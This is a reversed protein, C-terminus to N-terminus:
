VILSRYARFCTTMSAVNGGSVFSNLGIKARKLYAVLQPHPIRGSIWARVGLDAIRGRLEAEREGAGLFLLASQPYERGFRAFADLICDLDYNAGLTGVYASIYLAGEIEKPFSTIPEIGRYYAIDGGLYVVCGRSRSCYDRVQNARQVYRKSEGFVDDALWIAFNALTRWVYFPIRTWANLKAIGLISEPWTDHIDVIFRARFVRAFVGAISAAGNHPLACFIVDPVGNHILERLFYFAILLDFVAHSLIRSVSTNRAYGPEFVLVCHWPLPSIRRHRKLAHEFASVFQCVVAGRDTLEQCIYRYRDSSEPSFPDSFPSLVWVKTASV